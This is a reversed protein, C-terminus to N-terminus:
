KIINIVQVLKHTNVGVETLIYDFVYDSPTKGLKHLIKILKNYRSSSINKTTFLSLGPTTSEKGTRIVFIKDKYKDTTNLILKTENNELFSYKEDPIILINARGIRSEASIINSAAQCYYHLKKDGDSESWNLVPINLNTNNKSYLEYYKDLIDEYLDKINYFSSSKLTENFLTKEYLKPSITKVPSNDITDSLNNGIVDYPKGYWESEVLDICSVKSQKIMNEQVVLCRVSLSIDNFM